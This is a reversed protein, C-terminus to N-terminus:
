FVAKLTIYEGDRYVVVNIEEGSGIIVEGMAARLEYSYTIKKGDFEVIIDGPKMGCAEGVGGKDVEAIYIGYTIGEPIPYTELLYDNKLIDVVTLVSIKFVPREPVIGQALQNCLEVTLNSPIAFGMNDIKANSIKKSNIGIVQGKMNLLPGGSSGDGIACDHQIYLSDWDNTGDNDTDTSVYRSYYSVVGFTASNYYEEGYSSGFAITFEGTVVENSDAFEAMAFYRDTTFTIVGLDIKKDYAIITADYTDDDYYVQVTNAKDIVHKCTIVYYKYGVFNRIAGDDLVESGDSLLCYRKYIVGSASAYLSTGGMTRRYSNIGVVFTKAKMIIPEFMNNLNSLDIQKSINEEENNIEDDLSYTGEKVYVLVEGQIDDFGEVKAFIKVFGHSMAKLLGNSDITAIAEDSSAWVVKANDNSPKISATLLTTEGINLTNNGSIEILELEYDKVTILYEAVVENKRSMATIVAFGASKAFVYYFSQRESTKIEIVDSDSSSYTVSTIGIHSNLTLIDGVVVTETANELTIKMDSSTGMDDNSFCGTFTIFCIFMVLLTFFKITVNKM